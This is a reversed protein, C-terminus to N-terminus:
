AVFLELDTVGKARAIRIPDQRGDVPASLTADLPVTVLRGGVPVVARPFIHKYFRGAGRGWQMGVLESTIGIAELMSATLSSFDDCDGYGEAVTTTPTQFREPMEQVYTINKQVWSGLAIAQCLQDRMPCGYQRFVIDRARSVIPHVERYQDVMGRLFM